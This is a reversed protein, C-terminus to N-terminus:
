TQFGFQREMINNGPAQYDFVANLPLLATSKVPCSYAKTPKKDGKMDALQVAASHLVCWFLLMPETKTLTVYVSRKDVLSKYGIM